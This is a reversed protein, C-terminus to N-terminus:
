FVVPRDRRVGSDIGSTRQNVTRLHRRRILSPHVVAIHLHEQRKDLAVPDVHVVERKPQSAVLLVRLVHDLLAQEVGEPVEMPEFSARVEAGPEVPNEDVTREVMPAAKAPSRVRVM